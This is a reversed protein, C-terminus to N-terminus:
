RQTKPVFGYKAWAYSGVDINAGLQVSSLGMKKYLDIQNSLMAPVAGTGRANPQVSLYGHYAYDPYITRDVSGINQGTNPDRLRGQFHLSNGDSSIEGQGGTFNDPHYMGGFYKDTFEKEDMHPGVRSMIADRVMQPMEGLPGSSIQRGSAADPQAARAPPPQPIGAVDAISAGPNQALHASIASDSLSPQGSGSLLQNRADARKGIDGHANYYADLWDGGTHTANSVARNAATEGLLDSMHDHLTSFPFSPASFFVRSMYDTQELKTLANFSDRTPSALVDEVSSRRARAPEPAAAPQRFGTMPLANPAMQLPQIRGIIHALNTSQLGLAHHIDDFENDEEIPDAM